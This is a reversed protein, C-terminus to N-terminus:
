RGKAAERLIRDPHKDEDGVSELCEKLVRAALGNEGTDTPWGRTEFANLLRRGLAVKRGAELARGGGKTPKAVQDPLAAAADAFKPVLDALDALLFPQGLRRIIAGGSHDTPHMLTLLRDTAVRVQKAFRRVQAPTASYADFEREELYEVMLRRLVSLAKRTPVDHRRCHEAIKKAQTRTFGHDTAEDGTARSLDWARADAKGVVPPPRLNKPKRM